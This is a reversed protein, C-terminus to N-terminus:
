PHQVRDVNPLRTGATTAVPSRPSPSSPRRRRSPTPRTRRSTAPSRIVAAQAGAAGAGRDQLHGAGELVPHPVPVGAAPQDPQARGGAAPDPRARHPAQHRARTRRVDAGDTYPHMPVGYLGERDAIEVIKGLYMVAVRDSVHRVVSLDHAIFVYTLDLEQQLDELLNVVQAQISVDLASVPEDARDAQAQPGPHPRHRHAPASRRLVRAPLPQLARPEARGAGPPGPRGEQRWERAHGEAAPVACRRDQRGHAAPEALSYPDQFIMQIDRRLPRMRGERLHTIDKGDFVIKGATPEELRTLLRGTTSKGCGSEGVLALTEGRRVSFDIGDVAQVAASRASCCGAGSRSTSRVLGPSRSCTPRTARRTGEATETATM